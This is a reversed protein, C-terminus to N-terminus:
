IKEFNNIQKNDLRLINGNKLNMIRYVRAYRCISDYFMDAIPEVFNRVVIFIDKETEGVTLNSKKNKNVLKDTVNFKIPEGLMAELKNIRSELQILKRQTKGM